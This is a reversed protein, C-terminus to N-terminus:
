KLFYLERKLIMQWGSELKQRQLPDFAFLALKKHESLEMATLVTDDAVDLIRMNMRKLLKETLIGCKCYRM